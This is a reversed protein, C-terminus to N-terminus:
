KESKDLTEETILEVKTPIYSPISNGKIVELAKEVALRGMEGPFQAISADMKGEIIANKADEIADFGVIIIKGEKGAQTIAEVAGLAMMDNCAFLADIDQHSELMNQFVSYGEAREYNATLSAAIKIGPVKKICRLFGSLRAISTEHGPTGELIAVKGKGQLRRVIYDAAIEGGKENDSGIYTVIRAGAQAATLSDIRNDVALVPIGAKNAKAVAPIIQQSGSASICIADVKRQILNEIIQMQKEVDIEREPAQSILDVGLEAATKKAEQELTVFFPNNLTKVVLAITINGESKRGSCCLLSVIWFFTIIPIIRKLNFRLKEM